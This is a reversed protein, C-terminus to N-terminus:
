VGGEVRGRLILLCIPLCWVVTWKIKRQSSGRPDLVRLSMPLSCIMCGNGKAEGKGPVESGMLEGKRDEVQWGDMMKSSCKGDILKPTIGTGNVCIADFWWPFHSPLLPLPFCYVLLCISFSLRLFLSVYHSPSICGSLYVPVCKHLWLSFCVQASVFLCLFVTLTPM